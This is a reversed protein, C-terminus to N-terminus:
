NINQQNMKEYNEISPEKILKEYLMKRQPMPYKKLEEIIWKAHHESMARLIDEKPSEFYFVLPIKQDKTAPFELIEITPDKEIERV